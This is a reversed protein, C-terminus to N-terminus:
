KRFKETKKNKEKEIDTKKARMVQTLLKAEESVRKTTIFRISNVM